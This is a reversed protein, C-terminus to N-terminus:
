KGRPSAEFLALFTLWLIRFDLRLSQRDLYQLDLALKQPMIERRYVDDVTAASLLQEEHRYEVSAWSTIGPRVTLVRRQEPTYSAVYRPDEPRPGVLSMDGKLVNLLQPLEDLKTRRLFRGIRTIRPDDGATIAAGSRDAAVAMSRFKYLRFLAGHVGVRRARYFVPGPSTVKIWIGIIVFVPALVLLGLVATTVDFIRKM